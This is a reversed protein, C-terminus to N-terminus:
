QVTWEVWARVQPPRGTGPSPRQADRPGTVTPVSVLFALCSQM